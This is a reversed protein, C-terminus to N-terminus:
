TEQKGAEKKDEKGHVNIKHWKSRNRRRQKHVVIRRFEWDKLVDKVRQADIWELIIIDDGIASSGLRDLTSAGVVGIGGPLM